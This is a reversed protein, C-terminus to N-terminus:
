LRPPEARAPALSAAIGLLTELELDSTIEISTGAREAFVHTPLWPRRDDATVVLFEEGEHEVTRPDAWSIQGLEGTPTERISLRHVADDPVYDLMLTPPREGAPGLSIHVTFGRPVRSPVWVPFPAERVAEELSLMRGAADQVSRVTEGPPPVFVFTDDEFVEDFSIELVELVALEEDGVFAAARVLVGREVDVLLEHHEAWPDLEVVAQWSTERPKARVRIAPRRRHTCRGLLDFDFSPILRSPDFLVALRDGIGAGQHADGDNSIAGRGPSYLWWRDGDLVGISSEGAGKVVDREERVRGAEDIWIRTRTESAPVARWERVTARITSWRNPADHMLELVTGLKSV